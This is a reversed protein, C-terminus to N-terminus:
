HALSAVTPADFLSHLPLEIKFTDRIRSIIQLGLLSDGVLSFFSDDAGFRNTGLVSQWIQAITREVENSTAFAIAQPRDAITDDGPASDRRDLTQKLLQAINVARRHAILEALDTTSVVIQAGLDHALLREFITVGEDPTIGRAHVPGDARAGVAAANAPSGGSIPTDAQAASANAMHAAAAGDQRCLVFDEVLILVAGQEDLM